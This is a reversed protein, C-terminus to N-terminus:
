TDDGLLVDLPIALFNINKHHNTEYFLGITKADIQVIASYAFAGPVIGKVIPWTKGGDNSVYIVGDARRRNRPLSCLVTHTPKGQDDSLTLMSGNCQASVLEKAQKTETWSKGGNKSFAIQRGTSRSRMHYILDGNPLESVRAECSINRVSTIEKPTRIKSFAWTKGHDDSMWVGITKNIVNGSADMSRDKGGALILRGKHKGLMLQRGESAGFHATGGTMSTIDKPKSWTQGEDDSYVMYANLFSKGEEHMKQYIPATYKEGRGKGVLTYDWNYTVYLFLLRNKEADYVLGPSQASYNGHEAAVVPPSWTKGSDDSYRVVLDQGSREPWGQRNGAHCGVVLRGSATKVVVPERYNQYQFGGNKDIKAQFVPSAQPQTKAEGAFLASSLCLLSLTKIKM